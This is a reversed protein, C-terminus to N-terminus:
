FDLYILICVKHTWLSLVTLIEIKRLYDIFEVYDWDFNWCPTKRPPHTSISLSIKFNRHFHLPGLIVLVVTPSFPWFALGVQNWFSKIFTYYNYYLPLSVYLYSFLSKGPPWTTLSLTEMVPSVPEIGPQPVLIGCASPWIFLIKKFYSFLDITCFLFVEKYFRQIEQENLKCVQM